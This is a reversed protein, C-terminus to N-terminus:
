YPIIVEYLDTVCPAQFCGIYGPGLSFILKVSEEVLPEEILAMPGLRWVLDSFHHQKPHTGIYAVTKLTSVDAGTPIGQHIYKMQLNIVLFSIVIILEPPYWYLYERCTTAM